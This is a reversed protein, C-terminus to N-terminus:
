ETSTAIPDGCEGCSVLQSGAFLEDCLAYAEETCTPDPDDCKGCSVLSGDGPSIRDSDAQSCLQIQGDDSFCAGENSVSWFCNGNEDSCLQTYGTGIFCVGKGPDCVLAGSTGGSSGEGDSGGCAPSLAVWSVLALSLTRFLKSAAM